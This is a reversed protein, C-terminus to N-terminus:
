EKPLFLLYNPYAKMIDTFAHSTYNDYKLIRYTGDPKEIKEYIIDDINMDIHGQYILLEQYYPVQIKRKATSRHKPWMELIVGNPDLPEFSRISCQFLKINGLEDRYIITLPSKPDLELKRYEEYKNM